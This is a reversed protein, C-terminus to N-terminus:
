GKAFDKLGQWDGAAALKAQEAWTEAAAKSYRIGSSALAESLHDTSMETLQTYRKIGAAKMAEALKPGIGNLKTLDDEGDDDAEAQEPEAPVEEVVPEPEVAPTEEPAVEPEAASTEEPAAPPAEEPAVEAEEQKAKLAATKTAVETKAAALQKQLDGVQQQLTSNEKRASNLATQAKKNSSPVFLRVFIWEILWGALVGLIFIGIEKELMATETLREFLAFCMNNFHVVIRVM